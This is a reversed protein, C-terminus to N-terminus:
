LAAGAVCFPIKVRGPVHQIDCLSVGAVRFSAVRRQFAGFTVASVQPRSRVTASPQPRNRVYVCRGAFVARGGCGWLSVPVRAVCEPFPSLYFSVPPGNRPFRFDKPFLHMALIWIGPKPTSYPCLNRSGGLNLWLFANQVWQYQPQWPLSRRVDDRNPGRFLDSSKGRYTFWWTEEIIMATPPVLFWGLLQSTGTRVVLSTCIPWRMGNHSHFEFQWIGTPSVLASLVPFSKFVIVFM